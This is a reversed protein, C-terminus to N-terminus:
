PSVLVAYECDLIWISEKASELAESVAWFYGCGDIFWKVDNHRRQPAFSGFRNEANPKNAGYQAYAEPDLSTGIKEAVESGITQLKGILGSLKDPKAASSSQYPPNQYGTGTQPQRQNGYPPQGQPPYQGQFSISSEAM